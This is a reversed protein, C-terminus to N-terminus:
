PTGNTLVFRASVKRFQLSRWLAAARDNGEAVELQIKSPGLAWLEKIAQQACASAVGRRRFAPVVYLEYVAGTKRPLFKHKEIGFLVFGAREGDCLIWRLFFQPNAHITEFYHRKWDDHPTFSPNLESFHHVAMRLFDQGESRVVPVMSVINMGVSEQNRLIRLVRSCGLGDITQRGMRAMKERLIKSEAIEVVAAALAREDLDKTAGMNRVVGNKTLDAIVQAQVPNRAYSLVACGMYLLEWLTGGAAIIAIDTREMVECMDLPNLLVRVHNSALSQLAAPNAHGPGAVATIEFDPLRSLAEVIKFTLDEPDSGGLTVLVRCGRDPCVRSPPRSRFERRLLVYSEGLCLRALSGKERYLKEEAGMNPNVILDAPFSERRAFDDVLLLHLGASRVRDLFVSDFRDGDVIVWAVSQERAIEIISDADDPSGAKVMTRVVGFGESELRKELLAPLEAFVFIAQGGADQWAQALALCRMVHGAGIANSADARILLLSKNM